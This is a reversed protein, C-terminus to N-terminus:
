SSLYVPFYSLRDTKDRKDAAQRKNTTSGDYFYLRLSFATISSNRRRPYNELYLSVDASTSPKEYLIPLFKYEVYIPLCIASIRKTICLLRYLYMYYNLNEYLFRM